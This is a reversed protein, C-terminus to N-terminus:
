YRLVKFISFISVKINIGTATLFEMTMTVVCNVAHDAMVELKVFNHALKPSIAMVFATLSNVNMICTVLYVPILLWLAYQLRQSIKGALLRKVIYLLLILLNLYLFDSM